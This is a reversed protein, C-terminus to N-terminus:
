FNELMKVASRVAESFANKQDTIAAIAPVKVFPIGVKGCGIEDSESDGIMIMPGQLRKKIEQFPLGSSKTGNVDDATVTYQRDLLASLGTENLAKETEARSSGTVLAFNFTERLQTLQPLDAILATTPQLRVLTGDLDFVITKM